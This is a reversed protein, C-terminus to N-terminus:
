RRVKFSPWTSVLTCKNFQQQSSQQRPICVWRTFTYYHRHNEFSSLWSPQNLHVLYLFTAFADTLSAKTDWMQRVSVNVGTFQNGYGSLLSRFTNVHLEIFTLSV